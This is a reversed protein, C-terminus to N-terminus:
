HRRTALREEAVIETAVFSIWCGINHHATAAPPLKAGKGEARRSWKRRTSYDACWLFNLAASEAETGSSRRPPPPPAAALAGPVPAGDEERPVGLARDVIEGYSPRRLRVARTAPDEAARELAQWSADEPDAEPDEEEEELDYGSALMLERALAVSGADIGLVRGIHADECGERARMILVAVNRIGGDGTDPDFAFFDIMRRVRAPDGFFDDPVRLRFRDILTAALMRQDESVDAVAKASKRPM